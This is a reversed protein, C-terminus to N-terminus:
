GWSLGPVWQVPPQTPGVALRSLHPIDREWQSEIGLGDLRYDTAIGVSSGPGCSMLLIPWLNKSSPSLLAFIGCIESYLLLIKPDSYLIFSCRLSIIWASVIRIVSKWDCSKGSGKCSIRANLKDGLKLNTYSVSEKNIVCTCRNFIIKQLEQKTEHFLFMQEYLYTTGFM